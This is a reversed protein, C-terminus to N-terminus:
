LYGHHRYWKATEALGQDLNTSPVFGLRHRARETRYLRNETMTRVRSRSLPPDFGFPRAALELAAGMALALGYPLSPGHLRRGLVAAIRRALNAVSVTEEGAVHFIEGDVSDREAADEIGRAVDGVHIPQWRADGGAIPRFLGRDVARYLGLLHLDRPGYVLGPRVVVVELRDSHAALAAREGELKTSEYATTPNPHSGEDVPDDGTPGLVGTTSVHVLRRRGNPPAADVAAILLRVGSVHLERYDNEPVGPRFLTGALNIITRSERVLEQLRTLQSSDRLDLATCEVRSPMPGWEWRGSRSVVRVGSGSAALREVVHSGIFGTGGVVLVAGSM